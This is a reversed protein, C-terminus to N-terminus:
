PLDLQVWDIRGLGDHPVPSAAASAVPVTSFWLPIIPLDALVAQEVAGYADASTTPDREGEATRLLEAVDEARYRADNATGTPGFLPQLLRSPSPIDAAWSVRFPGSVEAQRLRDLLDRAPLSALNIDEVGLATRWSEAVFEVVPEHGADAAFWITLPGEFDAPWLDRAADVDATCAACSVGPARAMGPGLLRDAPVVAGDLVDRALATTDLALALARRVDADAYRPDTLPLGLYALQRGPLRQVHELGVAEGPVLVDGDTGVALDDGEVPDAALDIGVAPLQPTGAPHDPVAELLITTGVRGAVRFPGTGIPADAFRVPDQEALPPLPLFAPHALLAPLQGFPASLAFSLTQKDRVRIDSITSTVPVGADIAAQWGRALDGAEVVTGDHWERDPKIRLTWRRLDDSSLDELLAEPAQDGWTPLRSDPTLVVLGSFLAATVHPSTGHPHLTDLPGLWVTPPRPDKAAVHGTVVSHADRPPPPGCGVLVALLTVGLVARAGRM